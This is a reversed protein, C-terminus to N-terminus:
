ARELKRSLLKEVVIAIEETHQDIWERAVKEILDIKSVDDLSINENLDPNWRIYDNKLNHSSHTLEFWQLQQSSNFMINFIDSIWPLLGSWKPMTISDYKGTGISVIVMPENERNIDDALINLWEVPNNVVIGGDCYINGNCAMTYPPFYSTAATTGLIVDWCEATAHGWSTYAVPSKNSLDYMFCVTPVLSDGITATSFEKQLLTKFNESSYKAQIYGFGTRVQDYWTTQFIERSWSKFKKIIETPSWQPQNDNGVTLANALFGGISVGGILDFLDTVKCNGIECMKELIVLAILGRIGGGDLSLISFMKRILKLNKLNLVNFYPDNISVGNQVVIPVHVSHQSAKM